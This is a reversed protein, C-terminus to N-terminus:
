RENNGDDRMRGSSAVVGITRAPKAARETGMGDNKPCDLLERANLPVHLDACQLDARTM